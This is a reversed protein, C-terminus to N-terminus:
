QLGRHFGIRKLLNLFFLNGTIGKNLIMTPFQTLLNILLAQMSHNPFERKSQWYLFSDNKFQEIDKFHSGPLDSFEHPTGLTPDRSFMMPSDPGKSFPEIRELM